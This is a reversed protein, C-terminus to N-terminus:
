LSQGLMREVNARYGRSLILDQGDKLVIEFQGHSRRELPAIVQEATFGRREAEV